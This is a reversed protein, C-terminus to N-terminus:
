ELVGRLAARPLAEHGVKHTAVWRYHLTGNNHAMRASRHAQQIRWTTSLKTGSDPSGRSTDLVALVKRM